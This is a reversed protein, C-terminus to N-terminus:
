KRQRGYAIYVLVPWLVVIVAFVAPAGLRDVVSRAGPDGRGYKEGLHLGLLSFAGLIVGVILYVWLSIM